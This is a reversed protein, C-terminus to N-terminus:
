RYKRALGLSMLHQGADKGNVTVRALRRGYRDRVRGELKVTGSALFARLADRSRRAMADDCWDRATPRNCRSSSKLEPADIDLLRVRDGDCHITDGDHVYIVACDSGPAASFSAAALLILFPGTIM